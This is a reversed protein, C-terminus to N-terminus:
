PDEFKHPLIGVHFGHLHGHVFGQELMHVGL